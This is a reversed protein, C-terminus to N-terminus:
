YLFYLLKGTNLFDLNYEGPIYSIIKGDEGIYPDVCRIIYDKYEEDGTVQYM